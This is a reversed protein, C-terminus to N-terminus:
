AESVGYERRWLRSDLLRENKPTSLVYAQEMAMVCRMRRLSTARSAAASISPPRVGTSYTQLEEARAPSGVEGFSERKQVWARAPNGAHADRRMARDDGSSGGAEVATYQFRNEIDYRRSRRPGAERKALLRQKVTVEGPAGDPPRAREM